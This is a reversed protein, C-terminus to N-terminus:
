TVLCWWWKARSWCYWMSFPQPESRYPCVRGARRVREREPKPQGRSSMRCTQKLAMLGIRYLAIDVLNRRSNWRRSRQPSCVRPTPALVSWSSVLFAVLWGRRLFFSLKLVTVVLRRCSSADSLFGCCVHGLTSEPWCRQHRFSLNSSSTTLYNSM